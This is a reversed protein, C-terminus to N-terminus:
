KTIYTKPHPIVLLNEAQKSIRLALSNAMPPETTFLRGALAPSVLKIGPNPLDEPSPFPFGSWYEQRSFGMSLPVQRAISEPTASDSM